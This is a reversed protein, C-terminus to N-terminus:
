VPFLQAKPLKKRRIPVHWFALLALCALSMLSIMAGLVEETTLVIRPKCSPDHMLLKTKPHMEGCSWAPFYLHPEVFKGPVVPPPLLKSALNRPATPDNLALLGPPLYEPVDPHGAQIQTVTVMERSAPQTLFSASLFTLPILAVLTLPKMQARALSTILAFEAIPLARYPFQVKALLPLSWFGPVLGASIAVVGLGLVAWKDRRTVILLLALTGLLAMLLFLTAVFGLELDANWISWFEPSFFDYRYLMEVDRYKELALAPVLYIAAVGIGLCIATAFQRVAHRHWLAYPTILLVSALLALPLHTCIIAAYALTALIVGRREAVRRLGIALLPILSIAVTEALAGRRTFDFLHYPAAMFMFAGLLPQSARDKLWHWATIGSLMYSAWFSAILSGYTSIGLLGFMATLYFSLPPYYYFVPSGLGSNSLPLWRPYLNGGAIESTFQDAWVWSIRFSDYLMPPGLVSPLVLLLAAAAFLAYVAASRQWASRMHLQAEAGITIKASM